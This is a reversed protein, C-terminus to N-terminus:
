SNLLIDDLWLGKHWHPCIYLSFTAAAFAVKKSWAFTVLNLLHYGSGPILVPEMETNYM